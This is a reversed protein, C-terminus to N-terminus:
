KNLREKIAELYFLLDVAEEEAYRIWEELSLSNNQEISQGYKRVGKERQENAIKTINNWYNM